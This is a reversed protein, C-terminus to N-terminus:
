PGRGESKLPTHAWPNRGRWVDVITALAYLCILLGGAVASLYLWWLSLGLGPSVSQSNGAATQSGFVALVLGFAIILCCHATLVARRLGPPFREIMLQVAFHTGRRIGIAAAIFTMWALSWEGVEEVWFYSVSPLDLQASIATMVYRLFVGVLMDVIAVLMLLTIAIHPIAELWRRVSSV